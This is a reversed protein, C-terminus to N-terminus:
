RMTSRIRGRSGGPVVKIRRDAPMLRRCYEVEDPHAAVVIQIVGEVGTLLELSYCIVPKGELEVYQKNVPMKMRTGQGAAAVVVGLSKAM